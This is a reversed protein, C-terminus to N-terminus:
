RVLPIYPHPKGSCKAIEEKLRKFAHDGEGYILPLYISFIGLLCYAKDEPKKTNRKEAWRLREDVPFTSLSTMRLAPIPIQTIKHILAELTKKSGLFEETQSFFEVSRPALLEQLTWGRTFWRSRRFAAEWGDDNPSTVNPANPVDSLYVYCQEADRYWRFMSAIAESLEAHNAKNICCTDVWFYQLRDKKAQAGCFQIKGYGGKRKDVGNNLEEFTIEDEDAGWTHSLIAYPPIQDTLDKTLRVEGHEDFSLLRM